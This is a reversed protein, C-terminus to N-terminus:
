TKKSELWRRVQAEEFRWYKGLRFGPIRDRSRRRTRTYVWSVPVKLIQAVDHVTLLTELDPSVYPTEFNALHENKTTLGIAM